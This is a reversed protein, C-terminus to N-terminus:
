IEFCKMTKSQWQFRHIVQLTTTLPKPLTPANKKIPLDIHDHTKPKTSANSAFFVSSGTLLLPNSM